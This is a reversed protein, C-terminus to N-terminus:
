LAGRTAELARLFDEPRIRSVIHWDRSIASREKRAENLTEESGIGPDLIDEDPSGIFAAAKKQKSFYSLFRDLAVVAPQYRIRTRPELDEVRLALGLAARTNEVVWGLRGGLGLEGLDSSLKAFNLSQAHNVLVPALAAIQRPSEAAALTERIVALAQKLRESPLVGESETLHTAGLRALANQLESVADKPPVFYDIPVNFTRLITVLQEATFSGKGREIESLRNQSLDLLEALAVQTWRRDLRLQRVRQGITNRLSSQASIPM